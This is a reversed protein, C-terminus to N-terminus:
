EAPYPRGEKFGLTDDVVYELHTSVIDERSGGVEEQRRAYALCMATLYLHHQALRQISIGHIDKTVKCNSHLPTHLPIFDDEDEDDSDLKPIPSAFSGVLFSDNPNCPGSGDDESSSDEDDGEDEEEPAFWLAREERSVELSFSLEQILQRSSAVSQVSLFESVTSAVSSSDARRNDPSSSHDLTVVRRNKKRKEVTSSQQNGMTGNHHEDEAELTSSLTSNLPPPTSTRNTEKDGISITIERM